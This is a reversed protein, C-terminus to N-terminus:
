RIFVYEEQGPTRNNHFIDLEIRHSRLFTLCNSSINRARSKACNFSPSTAALCDDCSAKNGSILARLVVGLNKIIEKLNVLTQSIHSKRKDEMKLKRCINKSVSPIFSRANDSVIYDVLDFDM